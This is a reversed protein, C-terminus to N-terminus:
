HAPRVVTVIRCKGGPTSSPEATYDDTTSPENIESDSPEQPANSDTPEMSYDSSDDNGTSPEEGNSSEDDSPENDSPENDSSKADSTEEDSPEEGSPKEDSPEENSPEEGSSEEGSSEEGSPGADSSDDNSSETDSPENDSPEVDSPEDSSDGESPSNEDITTSDKSSESESPESSALDTGSCQVKISDVYMKYVTDKTWPTPYGAWEETGKAGSNGGDWVSLGIRGEAAPFRYEDNAKNYTDERKLTRLTKGDVAWQIYDPDWVITYDHYDAFSEAGIDFYRSNSYNLIDHYFFNTEVTTPDKGVWEFDIEDGVQESRIIFASVVGKAISATKIRATVTGYQISHSAHVTSGFGKDNASDYTMELVLKGDEIKSNDPEFISVFANTNPNGNYQKVPVVDASSEFNVTQDLCGEPKWCSTSNYSKEPDCLDWMCFMANADCYGERYCPAWENCTSGSDSAAFVVAGATLALALLRTM